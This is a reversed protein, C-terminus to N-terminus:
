TLTLILTRTRTLAMTLTLPLPLPLPLTLTLSLALALTKPNPNPNPNLSAAFTSLRRALPLPLARVAHVARRLTHHPAHPANRPRAARAAQRSRRTSEIPPRPPPSATTSAESAARRSRRRRANSYSAPRMGRSRCRSGVDRSVSLRARSSFPSGLHVCPTRRVASGLSWHPGVNTRLVPKPTSQPEIDMTKSRAAPVTALWGEGPQETSQYTTTTTVGLM